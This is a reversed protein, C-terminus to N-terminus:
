PQNRQVMRTIEPKWVVEHSDAQTGKQSKACGNHKTSYGALLFRQENDKLFCDNSLRNHGRSNPFKKFRISCSV